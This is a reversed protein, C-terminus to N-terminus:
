VHNKIYSDVYAIHARFQAFVTEYATIFDAVSSVGNLTYM